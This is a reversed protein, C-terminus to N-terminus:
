LILKNLEQLNSYSHELQALAKSAEELLQPHEGIAVPHELYNNLSLRAAAMESELKKQLAVLMLAKHTMKNEM